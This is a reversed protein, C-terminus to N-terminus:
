KRLKAIKEALEAYLEDLKREIDDKRYNRSESYSIYIGSIFSDASIDEYAVDKLYKENSVNMEETLINQLLRFDMFRSIRDSDDGAIFNVFRAKTNNRRSLVLLHTPISSTRWCKPLSIVAQLLHNDLLYERVERLGNQVGHLVIAPVAIIAMGDNNLAKASKMISAVWADKLEIGDLTTFRDADSTTRFPPDIFIRDAKLDECEDTAFIDAVRTDSINKGAAILLMESLVLTDLANDRLVTKPNSKGLIYLTSIGYGSTLDAFTHEDRVELMESISNVLDPNLNMLDRNMHMRGTHSLRVLVFDLNDLFRDYDSDRLAILTNCLANVTKDKMAENISRTDVGLPITELETKGYFAAARKQLTRADELPAYDKSNMNGNFHMAAEFTEPSSGINLDMVITKLFLMNIVLNYAPIRDERIFSTNRLDDMGTRIDEEIRHIM